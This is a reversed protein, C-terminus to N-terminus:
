CSAFIPTYANMVPRTPRARLLTNSSLLLTDLNANEQITFLTMGHMALESSATIENRFGSTQFPTNVSGCPTAFCKNWKM